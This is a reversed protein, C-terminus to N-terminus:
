DNHSMTGPQERQFGADDFCRAFCLSLREQYVTNLKARRIEHDCGTIAVGMVLGKRTM